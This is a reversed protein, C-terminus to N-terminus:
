LTGLSLFHLCLGVLTVFMYLIQYLSENKHNAKPPIQFISVITLYTNPPFPPMMLVVLCGSAINNTNIAILCILLSLHLSFSLTESLCRKFARYGLFPIIIYGIINNEYNFLTIINTLYNNMIILVSLGSFIRLFMREIMVIYKNGIINCQITVGLRSWGKSTEKLINFGFYIGIDIGLFISLSLSAVNNINYV